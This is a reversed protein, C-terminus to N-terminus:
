LFSATLARMATFMVLPSLVVPLLLTLARAVASAPTPFFETFNITDTGANGQVFTTSVSRSLISISDSGDSSGNTLDAGYVSSGTIESSTSLVTITDNATGGYISASSFTKEGTIDVYDNGAGLDM